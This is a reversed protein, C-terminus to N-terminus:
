HRVYADGDSRHKREMLFTALLTGHTALQRPLHLVYHSKPKWLKTTEVAREAAPEITVTITLEIRLEITIGVNLKNKIEFVLTGRVDLRRTM